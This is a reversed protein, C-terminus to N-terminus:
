AKSVSGVRLELGLKSCNGGSASDLLGWNGTRFSYQEPSLNTNSIMKLYGSSWTWDCKHFPPKGMDSREIIDIWIKMGLKSQRNKWM